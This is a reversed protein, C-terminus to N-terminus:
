NASLAQIAQFGFHHLASELARDNPGTVFALDTTPGGPTAGNMVQLEGVRRAIAEGSDLWLTDEPGAAALEARILPFHTCALVIVDPRESEPRDFFPALIAAIRRGDPAVGRFKAEAMDVLEASGVRIIRCDDAFEAILRDTYPRDITAPTALLGIIRRKSMRAAPKIAPVVGVVPIRTVARLEALAITSITNCAAVVIEPSCAAIASQMVAMFHRLLDADKRLGYPYYANDCLYVHRAEPLARRIEMVVSLGGLGSDASLITAPM